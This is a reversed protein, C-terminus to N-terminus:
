KVRVTIGDPARVLEAGPVAEGDELQKKIAATDPKVTTVTLQTPIAAEDNIRCSVRGSTRSITALPHSVKRQGTADLIDGLAKNIAGVRDSLRRSRATYIAAVEKSAAAHADTDVRQRVLHGIIDLVDTEGDLTDWFTEADFDEGLMGELVASVREILNLDPRINM